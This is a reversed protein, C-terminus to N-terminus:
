GGFIAGIVTGAAGLPSRQTASASAHARDAELKAKDRDSLIGYSGLGVNQQGLGAQSVNAGFQGLQGTSNQAAGLGQGAMGYGLGAQQGYSGAAYQQAGLINQQRQQAEQARLVAAQQNTQQAMQSGAMQANRMAAAQNGGRAASAQALMSRQTQDLGQQLQAQAASPGQQQAQAVLGQLMANQQDIGQGGLQTGRNYLAYANGRDTVAQQGAQALMGVGGQQQAMGSGFSANGQATLAARAAAEAEASGGLYSQQIPGGSLATMFSGGGGFPDAMFGAGKNVTEGFGM